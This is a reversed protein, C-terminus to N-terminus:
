FKENNADRYKKIERQIKKLVSPHGRPHYEPIMNYVWNKAEAPLVRMDYWLCDYISAQDIKIPKRQKKM